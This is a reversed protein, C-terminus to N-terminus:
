ELISTIKLERFDEITMFQDTSYFGIYDGTDINYVSSTNNKLIDVAYKQGVTLKKHHSFKPNIKVCFM